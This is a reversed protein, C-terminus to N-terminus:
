GREVSDVTATVSAENADKMVEQLPEGFAAAFKKALSAVLAQIFGPEWTNPDTVQARYIAIADTTNCLIVKAPPGSPTAYQGGVNPLPDNDIRWLAPLPDLDPMPGPPSIIARLDIMDSPYVYEYLFGPM